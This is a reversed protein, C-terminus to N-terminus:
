NEVRENMKTVILNIAEDVNKGTCDIIRGGMNDSWRYGETDYGVWVETLEMHHLRKKYPNITLVRANICNCLGETKNRVTVILEDDRVIGNIRNVINKNATKFAALLKIHFDSITNNTM